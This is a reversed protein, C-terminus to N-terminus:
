IKYLEGAKMKLFKNVSLWSCFTTIVVGALLVAIGTIAMVQWTLM